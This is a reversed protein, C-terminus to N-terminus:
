ILEDVAADDIFNELFHSSLRAPFLWPADRERTPMRNGFPVALDNRIEFYTLSADITRNRKTVADQTQKDNM